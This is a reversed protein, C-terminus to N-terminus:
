SWEALDEVTDVDLPSGDCAVEGVLDPRRRMLTRAGEDGERDLLGWVERGIRVPNRRDGGYTAVAVPTDITATAVARWAGAPVFPQDGLGVVVAGHGAAAAHDVAVALSTAIGRRWSPNRLVTVPLPALVDDLDVAGTVVVTEDLGAALAADVAWAVVPRGQLPALLKHTDGLFRSGGGAALVM